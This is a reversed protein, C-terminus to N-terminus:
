RCRAPNLQCYSALMRSLDKIRDPSIPHNSAMAQIRAFFGTSTDGTFMELRGFAGGAAYPNYGAQVLLNFGIEDARKECIRQAALEAQVPSQLISVNKVKNPSYPCPPDCDLAHGVEHATVSALEDENSMLNIIGRTLCVIGGRQNPIPFTFANIVDSNVVGITTYPAVHRAPAIIRQFVKAVLTREQESFDQPRLVPGLQGCVKQIAMWEQQAQQQPQQQAQPQQQQAEQQQQQQFIQGLTNVVTDQTSQANVSCELLLLAIFLRRM